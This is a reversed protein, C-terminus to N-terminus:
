SDIIKVNSPITTICFYFLALVQVQSVYSLGAAEITLLLGHLAWVQLSAKSSKALSSISNVTSPVLSSLAMGGASCAIHCHYFRKSELFAVLM